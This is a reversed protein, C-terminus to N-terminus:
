ISINDLTNIANQKQKRILHIYTDYTIKVSAHGLIESVTKVDVGNKFLMSAFTHRLAHLGCREIGINDLASYFSRTFITPSVLKGRNNLLLMQSDKNKSLMNKLAIIANNNLDIIRNSSFTKVNKQIDTKYGTIETIDDKNDRSRVVAVNRKIHLTKEELNIDEKQIGLCEGLRIGTNLILIYADAYAYKEKGNSYTSKLETLLLKIEEETFFRVDKKDFNNSSPLSVTDMPNFTIDRKKVAFTLCANFADYVKKITSYSLNKDYLTTIIDQINEQQIKSLQILGINPKIHTNITSELRDFSTPKLDMRKQQYLWQDIYDIFSVSNINGSSFKDKDKKYNKLKRKVLAESKASFTKINPKGNSKTGIQIRAVWKNENVQYVCGDGNSKRTRM